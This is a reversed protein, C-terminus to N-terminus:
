RKSRQGKTLSLKTPRKIYILFLLPRINSGKPTGCKIVHSKSITKVLNASRFEIQLTPDFGTFHIEEAVM